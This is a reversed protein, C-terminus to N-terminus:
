PTTVKKRARAPKGRVLVIYEKLHDGQVWYWILKGDRIVFVESEPGLHPCPASEDGWGDDYCRRVHLRGDRVQGTLSGSYAKQNTGDSWTGSITTASGVLHLEAGHFSTRNDDAASYHTWDGDFDSSVSAVAPVTMASAFCVAFLLFSKIRM